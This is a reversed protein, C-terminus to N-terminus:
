YVYPIVRWRVREAYQRYADGFVARLSREELPIAAVLYVASILAFAFRDGTMHAAGFTAIMWGLYLPHRVFRYPGTIQLGDVQREPHIGALELPDLGRVSWAILAVGCLQLAACAPAVAGAAHYLEGGVRRWSWCVIGLLLSAIWVYTSRLLPEPVIRALARKAPTRALLSHHLAFISFLAADVAGAGWGRFPADAGLPVIYWWLCYALSLVFLAGGLWLFTKVGATDVLAARTAMDIAIM